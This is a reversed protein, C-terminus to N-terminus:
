LPTKTASKNIGKAQENIAENLQYNPSKELALEKLAEKLVSITQPHIPLKNGTVYYQGDEGQKIDKIKYWHPKDMDDNAFETDVTKLQPCGTIIAMYNVAITPVIPNADPGSTVSLLHLHEKPVKLGTEEYIERAANDEIKKDAPVLEGTTGNIRSAGKERLGSLDTKPLETEMYGQPHNLKGRQAGLAICINGSEDASILMVTSGAASRQWQSIIHRRSHVKNSPITIDGHPINAADLFLPLLERAKEQTINVEKWADLSAEKLIETIPKLKSEQPVDTSSLSINKTSHKNSSPQNIDNGHRTSYGNSYGLYYGTALTGIPLITRFSSFLRSNM